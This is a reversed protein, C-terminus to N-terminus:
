THKSLQGGDGSQKENTSESCIAVICQKLRFRIQIGDSGRSRCRLPGRVAIDDVHWTFIFDEHKILESEVCCAAVGSM